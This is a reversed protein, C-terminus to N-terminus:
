FCHICETFVTDDYYVRGGKRLQEGSPFTISLCLIDCLTKGIHSGTLWAHWLALWALWPALCALWSALWALWAALWVLVYQDVWHTGMNWQKGVWYRAKIAIVWETCSGCGVTLHLVPSQLYSINRNNSHFPNCFNPDILAVDITCSKLLKHILLEAWAQKWKM